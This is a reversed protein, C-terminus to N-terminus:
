LTVVVNGKKHGAEVYSFAEAIRAIPYKRDIVSKLAGKEILDRLFILDEIKEVAMGAKFKKGGTISTLLMTFIGGVELWNELYVGNEKLIRKCDAFKTKGVVSFVVDYTEGSKTFDEKTYDIVRDAGLSKVMAMNATSCVGTVIAGYYKALQVAYTGIAGSAGHILIKQGAKVNGLDRIFFLATNAALTVTAAEEFSMNSSKKAIAGTEAVCIYEAYTGLREGPTGFVADGNKFMKVNGGAAEVTGSFEFGLRNNKPRSIGFALKAMFKFSEPVFTLNRMNCDSTTVSAAHIKVLVENEKPVPKETEVLRLEDPPGYKTHLVTKM